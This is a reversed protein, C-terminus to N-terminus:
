SPTGPKVNDVVRGRMMRASLNPDDRGPNPRRAGRLGFVITKGAGTGGKGARKKAHKNHEKGGFYTEDLEVIM